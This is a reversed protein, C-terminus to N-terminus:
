RSTGTDPFLSVLHQGRPLILVNGSLQPTIREGDIEVRGPPGSLMAMARASSHYAFEIGGNITSASKLDGNFHLVRV